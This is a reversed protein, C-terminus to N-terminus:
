LEANFALSSNNNNMMWYAKFVTFGSGVTNVSGSTTSADGLVLSTATSVNVGDSVRPNTYQISTPKVRMVQPFPFTTIVQTTANAMGLPSYLFSSSSGDSPGIKYYYRQCAALEGQITGTATTFPTAIPGAEVQVGWFDFTVNTSAITERLALALYSGTGITKGSVSPITFTKSFRQWSTTLTVAQSVLTIQSSGGSGFNQLFLLDLSTTTNAKAWLSVTVSQNALTRVDEIKQEVRASGNSSVVEMRMFYQADGYGISAIDNPTFAQRSVNAVDSLLGFIWRDPGYTGNSMPTFSTGRQWIGFDGNIIKNKGAVQIAGYPQWALGTSTTSDAVLVTGDAGKALRAPVNDATATIIDGKADVLTNPIDSHTHAGVGVPVWTDTETDYVYAPRPVNGLTPM